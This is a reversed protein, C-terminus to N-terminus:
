KWKKLLSVGRPSLKYGTGMSITPGLAKLKRVNIKFKETAMKLKGALVRAPTNPHTAIIRVTKETWPGFKSYKDFRELKKLLISLEAENLTSWNRLRARPDPSQLKFKIEYVTGRTKRDLESKLNDLSDFGAAKAHKSSLSNPGVPTVSLIELLGIPTQLTGEAKVTPRVWNRYAVKVEGSKIKDLFEKKFLM